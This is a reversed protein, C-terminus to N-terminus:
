RARILKQSANGAASVVMDRALGLGGFGGRSRRCYVGRALATWISRLGRPAPAGTLVISRLRCRAALEDFYRAATDGAGDLARVFSGYEGAIDALQAFESSRPRLAEHLVDLGKPTPDGAANGGHQRYCALTERMEVRRCSAFARLSVVHDHNMARLRRTHGHGRM